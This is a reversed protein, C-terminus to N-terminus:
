NMFVFILVNAAPHLQANKPKQKYVDGTVGDGSTEDSTYGTNVRWGTAEETASGGRRGGGGGAGGGSSPEM